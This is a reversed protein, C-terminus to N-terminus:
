VERRSFISQVVLELMGVGELMDVGIRVLHVDNKEIARSQVRWGCAIGDVQALDRVQSGAESLVAESPVELLAPIAYHSSHRSEAVYEGWFRSARYSVDTNILPDGELYSSWEASSRIEEHQM